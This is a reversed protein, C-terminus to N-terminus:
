AGRLGAYVALLDGAVRRWNFRQEALARGQRGLSLALERNELLHAIHHGMALPDRYDDVVWGNGMGDVVEANGGRRTTVIPLGAAMAEYHVRALPENWQSACVFVDSSTYYPPIEALPVFGTLLVHGGYGAALRQLSRGYDDWETRGYWRSGVLVLRAAPHGPLIADMARILVHQGKKPSLRSVCLIVPDEPPFGLRRAVRRRIEAARPHWCPVYAEPDAGSYVVQLKPRAAPYRGAIGEAIFRSVTLVRECLDLCREAAGPALKNPDFMENHVSLVIPARPAARHITEVWAPRNFLHIVDFAGAALEHAVQEAFHDAPLRVVEFGKGKDRPPLDPDTISFVTVRHHAALYPLVGDIYTQIAGARIPPVPLKETAVLAARM